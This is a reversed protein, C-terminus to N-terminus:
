LGRPTVVSISDAENIVETIFVFLTKCLKLRARFVACVSLTLICCDKRIVDYM